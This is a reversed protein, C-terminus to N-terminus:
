HKHFRYKLQIGINRGPGPIFYRFQDLYNRYTVNTINQAYVVVLWHNHLKPLNWKFNILTYASPPPMLDTSVTYFLQRATHEIEIEFKHDNQHYTPIISIKAPPLNTPYRNPNLVKGYTFEGNLRLNFNPLHINGDIAMGLYYTPLQEYVYYPFAGRVTLIPQSQPNLHIYNNSHQFFGQIMWNSKQNGGTLIYELKIGTEPVLNENGEEYSASGHHVGKSYLENVSPPRWIWSTHLEHHNQSGHYHSSNAVSIGRYNTKQEHTLSNINVQNARVSFENELNLKSDSIKWFGVLSSNIQNMMPVLYYGGYDQNKIELEEGIFLNTSVPFYSKQNFQNLWLNLQPFRLRSNRHPDYEKRENRQYSVQLYPFNLDISPIEIQSIFHKATQYPKGIEYTAKNTLFKPTSNSIARILDTTNGIHSGLYIGSQSAFYSQQFKIPINIIQSKGGFLFYHENMSTNRLIGQPVRYDSGYTASGNIYVAHKGTNDTKSYNLATQILNGNLEYSTQWSFDTSNSHFKPLYNINFNNGWSGMAKILAEAGKQIEIDQVGSRGLEPSHDNGWAQNGIVLNNQLIPVRLGFLGQIIPKNITRGTSILQVMSLANLKESISSSELINGTNLHIHNHQIFDSRKHIHVGPLHEFISLDLYITDNNKVSLIVVSDQNLWSISATDFCYNHFIGVGNNNTITELQKNPIEIVLNSVPIQRQQDFVMLQFRCSDFQGNLFATFMWLIFLSSIKKM